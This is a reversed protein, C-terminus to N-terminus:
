KDTDVYYYDWPEHRYSTTTFLKEDEYWRKHTISFKQDTSYANIIYPKLTHDNYEAHYMYSNGGYFDVRSINGSDYYEISLINNGSNVDVERYRAKIGYVRDIVVKGQRPKYGIPFWYFTHGSRHKYTGFKTNIFAKTPLKARQEDTIDGYYKQSFAKKSVLSLMFVTMILIRKMVRNCRM